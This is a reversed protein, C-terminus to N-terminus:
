KRSSAKDECEKCLFLGETLEKGCIMCNGRTVVDASIMIIAERIVIERYWEFKSFIKELRKHNNIFSIIKRIIKRM